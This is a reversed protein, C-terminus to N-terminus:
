LGAATVASGPRADHWPHAPVKGVQAVPSTLLLPLPLSTRQASAYNTSTRILQFSHRSSRAARRRQVEAGVHCPRVRSSRVSGCMQGLVLRCSWATVSEESQPLRPEGG